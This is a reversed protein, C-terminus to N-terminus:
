NMIVANYSLTEEITLWCSKHDSEVCIRLSSPIGCMRGHHIDPFVLNWKPIRLYIFCWKDHCKSLTLFHWTKNPQRLTHSVDDKMGDENPLSVLFIMQNDKLSHYMMQWTMKVLYPFLFYWKATRLFTICWRDHWRWIPLCVLFIMQGDKLSHYMMQWRWKTLFCWAIDKNPITISVDRM